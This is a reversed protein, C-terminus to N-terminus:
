AAPRRTDSIQASCTATLASGITRTIPRNSSAPNEERRRARRARGWRARWRRDRARRVDHAGSRCAQAAGRSECERSCRDRLRHRRRCVRSRGRTAPPRRDDRRARAKEVRGHVTKRLEEWDLDSLTRKSSRIGELLMAELKQMDKRQQYTKILASVFESANGYGGAKVEDAVFNKMDDPIAINLTQM